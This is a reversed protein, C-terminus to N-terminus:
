YSYALMSCTATRIRTRTAHAHTHTHTPTCAAHPCQSYLHTHLAYPHIGTGDGQTYRNWLNHEGPASIGGRPRAGRCSQEGQWCLGWALRGVCCVAPLADRGIRGWAAKRSQSRCTCISGSALFSRPASPLAQQPLTPTYLPLPATSRVYIHFGISPLMPEARPNPSPALQPQKGHRRSIGWRTQFLMWTVNHAGEGPAWHGGM